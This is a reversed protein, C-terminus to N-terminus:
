YPTPEPEDPEAAVARTGKNDIASPHCHQCQLRRRNRPLMKWGEGSWRPDTCPPAHAGCAVEGLRSWYLNNSPLTEAM